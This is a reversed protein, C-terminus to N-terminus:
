LNYFTAKMDHIFHRGTRFDGPTKSLTVFIDPNAGNRFVKYHGGELAYTFGYKILVSNQHANLRTYSTFANSLEQLEEEQQKKASDLVAQNARLFETLEAKRFPAMTTNKELLSQIALVIRPLSAPTVEGTQDMYPQIQRLNTQAIELEDSLRAVEESLRQTQSAYHQKENDTEALIQESLAILKQQEAIQQNSENTTTELQEKMRRVTRTIENKRRLGSIFNYDCRDLSRGITRSIIYSVISGIPDRRATFAGGEARFFDPSWAKNYRTDANNPWYIRVGGGHCGMGSNEILHDIRRAFEENPEVFVHALGATKRALTATDFCVENTKYGRSVLIVPLSHGSYNKQCNIFGAVAEDDAIELNHTSTKLPIWGDFSKPLLEILANVILPKQAKVNRVFCDRSGHELLVSIRSSSTESSKKFAIKTRWFEGEDNGPHLFLYALYSTDRESASIKQFVSKSNGGISFDEGKALSELVSGGGFFEKFSRNNKLWTAVINSISAEDSEFAVPFITKVIEEM